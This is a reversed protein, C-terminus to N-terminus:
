PDTRESVDRVCYPDRGDLDGTAVYATVPCGGNCRQIHHPCGRCGERRVARAENLVKSSNWLELLDHERVDEGYWRNPDFRALYNCAIVNGEFTVGLGLSAMACTSNDFPGPGPEHIMEEPCFVDYNVRIKKPPVGLDTRLRCVEKAVSAVEQPSLMQGQDARGLPRLLGISLTFGLATVAEALHSVCHRNDKMLVMNVTPRARCETSRTHKALDQLASVVKRYTGKGRIADNTEEDGDLSVRIDLVGRDVMGCLTSGGALGNTNVAPIMGEDVIVDVVDSFDQRMTPEGGTLRVYYGGLEAFDRLLKEIAPFSLENPSAQRSAEAFCHTCHGDCQNTLEIYLDAPTALSDSRLPFGRETADIMRLTGSTDQRNALLERQVLYQDPDLFRPKPEATDVLMGGFSERRLIIM